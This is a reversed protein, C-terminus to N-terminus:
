EIHHQNALEVHEDLRRFDFKDREPQLDRWHVPAGALRWSRFPVDPWKTGATARGIHMGFFDPPITATPVVLPKSALTRVGFAVLMFVATIASLAVRSSM